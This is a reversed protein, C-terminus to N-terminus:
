GSRSMRNRMLTKKYMTVLETTQSVPNLLILRMLVLSRLLVQHHHQQLPGLKRGPEFSSSSSILWRISSANFTHLLANVFDRSSESGSHKAAVSCSAAGVSSVTDSSTM